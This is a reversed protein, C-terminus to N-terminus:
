EEGNLFIRAQTGLGTASNYYATIEALDASCYRNFALPAPTPNSRQLAVNWGYIEKMLDEGGLVQLSNKNIIWKSVYSGRAGHARVVGANTALEHNVLLTFTGDGNDFAGQGDPIGSLGYPAGGALNPVTDDAAAGTNDVTLISITEFGARAPLAYPTSATSPGTLQAFASSTLLASLSFALHRHSKKM